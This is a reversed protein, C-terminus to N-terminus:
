WVTIIKIINRGEQYVVGINRLGLKREAHRCGRLRAKTEKDPKELVNVIQEETIHRESMRKKAHFTFSLEKRKAYL